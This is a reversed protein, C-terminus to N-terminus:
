ADFIEIKTDSQGFVGFLWRSSPKSAHGTLQVSGRSRTKPWHASLNRMLVAREDGAREEAEVVQRSHRKQELNRKLDAM